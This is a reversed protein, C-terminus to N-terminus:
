QILLLRICCRSIGNHRTSFINEKENSLPQRGSKSLDIISLRKHGLSVNEDNFTGSDDPGRHHIEKLGEKLLSADQWNFGFIGCM